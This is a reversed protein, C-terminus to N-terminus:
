VYWVRFQGFQNFDTLFTDQVFSRNEINDNNEALVLEGNLKLNNEIKFDSQKIM